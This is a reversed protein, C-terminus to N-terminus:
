SSARQADQILDYVEKRGLHPRIAVEADHRAHDLGDAPAV